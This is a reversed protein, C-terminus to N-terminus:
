NKKFLKCKIKGKNNLTSTKQEQEELQLLKTKETRLSDQVSLKNNISVLENKIDAMNSKIAPKTIFLDWLITGLIFIIVAVSLVCSFYNYCKEVKIKEM